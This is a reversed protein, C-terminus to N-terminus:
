VVIFDISPGIEIKIEDRSQFLEGDLTFPGPEDPRIIVSRGSISFQRYPQRGSMKRLSKKLVTPPLHWVANHAPITFSLLEGQGKHAAGVGHFLPVGMPMQRVTSFLTGCTQHLIPQGDDITVTSWGSKVVDRYLSGQRVAAACSVKAILAAAGFFGSKNEYFKKLFHAAIGNGFLFGYHNDVKITSLSAHILHRGSSYNEILRYLVQEPTGKIGLNTALMNMTGGRLLAIQPLPADRYVDLFATLTQSITGDGGNIALVSINQKLFDEAVSRLQELSQTVELQGKAGVIYSLLNKRWPDRKNLKSHPNAIIGIGPM